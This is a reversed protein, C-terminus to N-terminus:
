RKVKQSIDEKLLHEESISKVDLWYRTGQQPVDLLM